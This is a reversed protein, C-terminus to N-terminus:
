VKITNTREARFAEHFYSSVNESILDIKGPGTHTHPPTYMFNLINGCVVQVQRILLSCLSTLYEPTQFEGWSGFTSLWSPPKKREWSFFLCSQAWVEKEGATRHCKLWFMLVRRWSLFHFGMWPSFDGMELQQSRITFSKGTQLMHRASASM